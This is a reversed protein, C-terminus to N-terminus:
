CSREQLVVRVVSLGGAPLDAGGIPVVVVDTGTKALDDLVGQWGGGADLGVPATGAVALTDADFDVLMPDCGDTAEPDASQQRLEVRGLLDCLTRVAANRWSPDAAISWLKGGSHPEVCRGLLTPVGGPASATLDLLDVTVDLNAASKALFRLEPDDGLADLPVQAVPTGAIADRLAAFALASALGDRIAAAPDFGAGAGARSPEVVRDANAIGFPEVVARPLEVRADSTLCDGTVPGTDYASAGLQDAYAVAALALARTRAGVVHHVDFASIRRPTGSPDTFRVTGIKVPTQEWDEDDYRQFVGAHPQLLLDRAALEAAAADAAEDEDAVQAASPADVVVAALPIRLPEPRCYVCLPHPLLPESVVDLSDLDQVILKGDTEATLAGTTLRFVEFGLLNGIMAALPGAPHPLTSPAAAAVAVQRWVDAAATGGVNATLRLMACYWCGRHGAGCAPGVIARSGFTWAPIMTKGEPVGAALLRHALRAAGDGGAVLVVDAETLDAWSLEDGGVPWDLVTSPVGTSHLEAAEAAATGDGGGVLAVRAMGNRVLSTACAHAIPGSGIVAATSDRFAAFRQPAGDVYHDIYGIQSAFRKAVAAGVVTAPDVEDPPIDRALKRTLLASVLEGVMARQPEPLKACLEAVTRRGNLHPVLLSALRYASPSTIRFGGAPNHFLVGDYAATFLVDRRIRPRTAAVSEYIATM